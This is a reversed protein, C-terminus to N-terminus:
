PLVILNDFKNNIQLFYFFTRYINIYVIATKNTYKEFLTITILINKGWEIISFLMFM